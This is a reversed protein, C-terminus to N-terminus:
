KVRNPSQRGFNLLWHRCPPVGTADSLLAHM